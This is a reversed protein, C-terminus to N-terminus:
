KEKFPFGLLKLLTLGEERTKASTTITVELGHFKEVKSPNIEPFVINEKFGLTLNGQKDVSKLSIGWFDRVRPLAINILKYIFDYMKKGRLTVKYGVVMGRRIKFSSISKKALTKVPRQGTISTLSEEIAKIFQTDKNSSSIGVNLTVKEIRPVALDNKYGFKEKMQPVVVEKYKKILENM